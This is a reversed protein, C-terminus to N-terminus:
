VGLEKLIFLAYDFAKKAYRLASNADDENYIEWPTLAKAPEGYIARGHESALVEAISALEEMLHKVSQPINNLLEKLELAPNHSWSPVRFFAIVAKASNEAALQSEAVTARYDKRNFAEEASKLYQKALKIKYDVEEKPDIRM